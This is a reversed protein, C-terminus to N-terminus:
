KLDMTKTEKLEYQFLVVEYKDKNELIEKSYAIAGSPYVAWSHKQNYGLYVFEGTEKNRIKYAKKKEM